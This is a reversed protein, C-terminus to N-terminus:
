SEEDHEHSRERFFKIAAVMREFSDALEGLEDRSNIGLEVDLDGKSIRETARKLRRLPAIITQAIALSVLIALAIVAITLILVRTRVEAVPAAAEAADIKTMVGWELTPVFTWAALVEKGRYDVVAGRGTGGRAAEVLPLSGPESLARRGLAASEDHRTPAMMVLEDGIRKAVVTEGSAGLGTSDNILRFFRGLNLRAAVVGLSQSDTGRIPTAIVMTLKETIPSIFVPQIYTAALGRKFYEIDVATKGQHEAFTSVIVAGDPAMVLLEEYNRQDGLLVGLIRALDARAATVLAPEQDVPEPEGSGDDPEVNGPDIEEADELDPLPQPPEPEKNKNEPAALTLLLESVPEGLLEAVSRVDRTRADVFQDIAEAKARALGGLSELKQETSSSRFSDLALLAVAVGPVIAFGILMLM